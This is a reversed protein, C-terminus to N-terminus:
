MCCISFHYMPIVTRKFVYQETPWFCFNLADMVFVYQCTLHGDVAVDEFYHFDGSDWTVFGQEDNELRDGQIHTACHILHCLKALM